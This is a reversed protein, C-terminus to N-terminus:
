TSFRLKQVVATFKVNRVDTLLEYCTSTARTGMIM